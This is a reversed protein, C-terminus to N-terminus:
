ELDVAEPKWSSQSNCPFNCWWCSKQETVYCFNKVIRQQVNIKM